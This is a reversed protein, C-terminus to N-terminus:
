RRWPEVRLLTSPFEGIQTKYFETLDVDLHTLVAHFEHARSPSGITGFRLAANFRGALMEDIAYSILRRDTSSIEFSVTFIGYIRSGFTAEVGYRYTTQHEEFVPDLAVITPTSVTLNSVAVVDRGYYGSIATKAGARSLSIGYGGVFQKIVESRTYQPLSLTPEAKPAPLTIPM